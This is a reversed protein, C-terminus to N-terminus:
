RACIRPLHPRRYALNGPLKALNATLIGSYAALSGFIARLHSKRVRQCGKPAYSRRSIFHAVSAILQSYLYCLNVAYKASSATLNVSYAILSGFIARLPRNECGRVVKLPKHDDVSSTLLMKIQQPASIVDILLM